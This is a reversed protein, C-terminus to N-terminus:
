RLCLRRRFARAFRALPAPRRASNSTGKGPSSPLERRVSMRKCQASPLGMATSTLTTWGSRRVLSRAALTLAPAWASSASFDLIACYELGHSRLPHVNMGKPTSEVPPHPLFAMAKLLRKARMPAIRSPVGASVSSSKHVLVNDKARALPRPSISAM